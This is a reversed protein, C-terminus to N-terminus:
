QDANEMQSIFSQTKNIGDLLSTNPRWSLETKARNINLYVTKVDCNRNGTYRVTLAKGQFEGIIHLIENLSHGVGSGINFIRSSTPQFTARVIGDILDKIYIYDRVVSGDGWIEIPENNLSKKIFIPIVGQIGLPNQREGFPNSPRIIMYDLNHLQYFLNLYKEITLKSIGYSCLPNTPHNESVPPLTELPGYVTGGSSLFVVKKINLAVCQQLFNITEVVNSQIDYVPDENSTKPVTSSILHFVIDIGKLADAIKKQDDFTGLYYIVGSLPERYHENSRDYVRVHCGEALLRDVLHSGIFGNGGLILVNM